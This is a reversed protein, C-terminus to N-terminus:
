KLIIRKDACVRKIQQLLAEDSVDSASIDLKQLAKNAALGVAFSELFDRDYCKDGCTLDLEQLVSNVAIADGLAKGAGVGDIGKAGIALKELTRNKKIAEALTIIGYPVGLKWAGGDAARYIRRGDGRNTGQMWGAPCETPKVLEGIENNSINLSTLTRNNKIADALVSAGASNIGNAGIELTNLARNNKIAEALAIVGHPVVLAWAGGDAARYIRRGVHQGEVRNTAQIWGAPCETPIVLEGIGNNNINLSTLTDNALVGMALERAFGPGDGMGNNYRDTWNNNSVDLEKLVSNSALADGLAKGAEKTLMKNKSINLRTLTGHHKIADALAIAGVPKFVQNAPKEKRRNQGDPSVYETSWTWGDQSVMEGIENHSINLSTLSGKSCGNKKLGIALEQAFGPGDYGSHTSNSVDLEKLTANGALMTALAKGGEKNCLRNNGLLLTELAGNAVIEPALMIASDTDIRTSRNMGIDGNMDLITEDGNNGCLSKLTAHEELITALHQAQELHFDNHLLNVSVLAEHARIAEALAIAGEPKGPHNEQVRGDAHKFIEHGSRYGYTWGDPMVFSGIDNNSINLRTLSGMTSIAKAIARVAKMKNSSDYFARHPRTILNSSIDLETVSQNGKLAEGLRTAGESCIDNKGMNLKVLATNTGLGIALENAFGIGDLTGKITGDTYMDQNDSVDLSKLVTNQALADALAKGFEKSVMANRSINLTELAGNNTIVNAFAIAGAPSTGEPAEKQERGDAHKYWVGWGHASDPDHKRWGKPPVLEGVRNNSVNLSTLAAGNNEIANALAIIGSMDSEYHWDESGWKIHKQSGYKKKDYDNRPDQKLSGKTLRNSSIDLETLAGNAIVGDALLQACKAGAGNMSMDLNKMVKNETLAEAIAESGRNGLCNDSVNLSTLAGNAVVGDALIKACKAGAGNDSMNLDKMTKNQRLAEAIAESGATGLCTKRVNLTELKLSSVAAALTKAGDPGLNNASIDFKVLKKMSPLVRRAFTSWHQPDMKPQRSVDLARRLRLEWLKTKPLELQTLLRKLLAQNATRKAHARLTQRYRVTARHDKALFLIDKRLTPAKPRDEPKAAKFDSEVRTYGNPDTCDCFVADIEGRGGEGQVVIRCLEEPMPLKETSLDKYDTLSKPLADVDTKNLERVYEDLEARSLETADAASKKATRRRRRFVPPRNEGNAKKKTRAPPTKTHM